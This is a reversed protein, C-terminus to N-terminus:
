EPISTANLRNCTNVHLPFRENNGAGAVNDPGCISCSCCGACMDDVGQVKKCKKSILQYTFHDSGIFIAANGPHPECAFFNGIKRNCRVEGFDNIAFRDFQEIAFVQSAPFKQFLFIYVSPRNNVSLQYIIRSLFLSLGM